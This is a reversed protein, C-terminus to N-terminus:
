VAQKRARSLQQNKRNSQTQPSLLKRLVNSRDERSVADPTVGGVDLHPAEIEVRHFADLGASIVPSDEHRAFGLFATQVQHNGALHRRCHREAPLRQGRALDFGDPLPDVCPGLRALRDLDAFEIGRSSGIDFGSDGNLRLDARDRITRISLQQRKSRVFLDPQRIRGALNDARQGSMRFLHPRDSKRGIARQERRRAPQRGPFTLDLDPVDLFARHGPGDFAMRITNVGYRKRRLSLRQGGRAVVLQDLNPFGSGPFFDARELIVDVRNIVQHERGVPLTQEGGGGIAGHLDPIHGGALPQIREALGGVPQVRQGQM